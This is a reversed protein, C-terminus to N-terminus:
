LWGATWKVTLHINQLFVYGGNKHANELAKQAVPEQGQGLSVLAFKGSEITNDTKLGFAEVAKVPDTGPSLIFFMPVDPRADEYAKELNFPLTQVYQKGLVKRVFATLAEPM